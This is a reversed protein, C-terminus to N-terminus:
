TCTSVPHRPLLREPGQAARRGASRRPQRVLHRPLRGAHRLGHQLRGHLRHQRRQRPRVGAAFRTDSVAFSPAFTVTSGSITAIRGYYKFLNNGAPDEQRSYYFIGLRSGDPTVALTPQWQDTTTADDNVKVPASWTAGGDTSQVLFVDAKDAGAGKNNYTVYINGTVPNVAAHPFENSRFGSATSTGQRIGTLGLDGNTGGVLGTAVTVAAGFTLGCTPPSACRAHDRRRVLVRLGRPGPRRRRLGGQNGSVILTGGSPGFTAGHDTSRFFYIGNGAGFDREVLYVNGNGPAPSTISPSGNRTRAPRGQGPTGNVPASWTSATTTPTSSM